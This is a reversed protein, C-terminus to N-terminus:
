KVAPIPTRIGSTVKVDGDKVGTHTKGGMIFDKYKENIVVRGDVMELGTILHTPSLFPKGNKYHCSLYIGNLENGADFVLIYGTADRVETSDMGLRKTIRKLKRENELIRGNQDVDPHYPDFNNAQDERERELSIIRNPINPAYEIEDVALVFDVPREKISGITCLVQTKDKIKQFNLNLKPKEEKTEANKTEKEELETEEIIPPQYNYRYRLEAQIEEDNLLLYCIDVTDYMSKQTTYFKTPEGDKSPITAEISHEKNFDIDETQIDYKIIEKLVDAEIRSLKDFSTGEYSADHRKGSNIDNEIDKEIDKFIYDIYTTPEAPTALIERLFKINETPNEIKKGNEDLCCANVYKQLAQQHEAGKRILNLLILKEPEIRATKYLQIMYDSLKGTELSENIRKLLGEKILGIAAIVDEREDQREPCDKLTNLAANCKQLYEQVAKFDNEDIEGNHDIIDRVEELKIKESSAFYSDLREPYQSFLSFLEKMKQPYGEKAIDMKIDRDMKREAYLRLYEQKADKLLLMYPEGSYKDMHATVISLLLKQDDNLKTSSLSGEYLAAKQDASLTEIWKVLDNMKMKDTIKKLKRVNTIFKANSMEYQKNKELEKLTLYLAKKVEINNSELAKEITKKMHKADALIFKKQKTELVVKQLDILLQTDDETMERTLTPPIKRISEILEDQFTVETEDNEKTKFTPLGMQHKFNDFNIPMPPVDKGYTLSRGDSKYPLGEFYLITSKSTLYKYAFYALNFSTQCPLFLDEFKRGSKPVGYPDKRADIAKVYYRCVGPRTVDLDVDKAM